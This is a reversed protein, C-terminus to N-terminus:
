LEKYRRGEAYELFRRLAAVGEAKTRNLDLQDSRMASFVMMECRARSVAVNLRRWGGERNLPGFNMYIKGNEDPGFGISFLIVDREDGQVNELNKIFLPEESGFAWKELAPDKACAENLLDDILHQQSINFTVVGLSQKSLDPDQCRRKIEELVALAEAKNTRTKGRDFVGDVPVLTVKSVRDNVSPFTFLKNEYFQPVGGVIEMVVMRGDPQAIRWHVSGIKHNLTVIDVSGIAAKVDDITSFQSLVWSVFQMDCLTRSNHSADYPAYDGYGPFFFLGAALGAENVGEVVFPEYETYVGVYGYVSTYKLGNEGTPTFSQQRCKRPAVVYGCQMPTAAWEVTRAVVNSGDQAPLQIGTCADADEAAVVFLVAAAIFTFIHKM